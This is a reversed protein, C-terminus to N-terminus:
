KGKGLKMVVVVVVTIDDVAVVVVVPVGDVAVVFTTLSDCWM